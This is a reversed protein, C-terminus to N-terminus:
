KAPAPSPARPAQSEKLSQDIVTKFDELTRAGRLVRGNVVFTPTSYIGARRAEQLDKLVAERSAESDLCSDFSKLDVGAAAAANKLIQDSLDAAQEFLLDHYPWFKGVAGACFAAQAAKFSQPHNPLPLNKHLIRVQSGYSQVVQKLTEHVKKCYQCQFDVFAAITVPAGEAGLSPGRDGIEVKLPAPSKLRLEVRAKTKLDSIARNLAEARKQSEITARIRERAELEGLPPPGYRSLNNQYADEVEREEVQVTAIVQRRLEELGIGRRAAEEELLVRNILAELSRSRLEYIKQELSQIQAALPADVESRGIRRGNIIAMTEDGEAPPRREQGLTSDLAAAFCLVLSLVAFKFLPHDSM